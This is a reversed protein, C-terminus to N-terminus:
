EARTFKTVMVDIYSIWQFLVSKEKSTNFDKHLNHLIEILPFPLWNKDVSNALYFGLSYEEKPPYNTITTVLTKIYYLQTNNNKELIKLSEVNQLLLHWTKSLIIVFEQNASLDEATLQSLINKLDLLVDKLGQLLFFDKQAKASDILFLLNKKIHLCFYAMLLQEPSKKDLEEFNQKGPNISEMKPTTLRDSYFEPGGPTNINTM